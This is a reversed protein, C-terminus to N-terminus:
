EDSQQVQGPLRHLHLDGDQVAFLQGADTVVNHQRRGPQRVSTETPQSALPPPLGPTDEHVIMRGGQVGFLRGRGTAENEQTLVEPSCPAETGTSDADRGSARSSRLWSVFGQVGAGLLILFATVAILLFIAFLAREWVAGGGALVAAVAVGASSVGASWAIVTSRSYAM